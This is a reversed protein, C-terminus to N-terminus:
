VTFTSLMSKLEHSNTTKKAATNATYQASRGARNLTTHSKM